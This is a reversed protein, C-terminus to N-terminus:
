WGRGLRTTFRLDHLSARCDFPPMRISGISGRPIGARESERRDYQSSDLVFNDRPYYYLRQSDPFADKEFRPTILMGLRVARISVFFFIM